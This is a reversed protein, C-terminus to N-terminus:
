QGGDEKPCSLTSNWPNIPLIEGEWKEKVAGIWAQTDLSKGPPLLPNRPIEYIAFQFNYHIRRTNNIKKTQVINETNVILFFIFSLAIKTVPIHTYFQSGTTIFINLTTYNNEYSM